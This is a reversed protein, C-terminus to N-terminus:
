RTGTALPSTTPVVNSTPPPPPSSGQLTTAIAAGVGGGIVLAGVLLLPGYNSGGSPTAGSANKNKKNSNGSNNATQQGSNDQGGTPSSGTQDDAYPAAMCSASATLMRGPELSTTAAGNDVALTGERAIIQLQGENQTIQFRTQVGRAPQVLLNSVRVSLGRDTSILATGCLVNVFSKSFVLSSNGAVTVSSGQNTVRALANPGTHVKDGPFVATAQEIPSGNVTVDGSAILMASTADAMVLSAPFLVVLIWALSKVWSERV